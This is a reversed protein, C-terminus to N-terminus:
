MFLVIHMDNEVAIAENVYLAFLCVFQVKLNTLSINIYMYRYSDFLNDIICIKGNAKMKACKRFWFVM